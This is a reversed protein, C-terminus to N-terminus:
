FNSMFPGIPPTTQSSEICKFKSPSLSLVTPDPGMTMRILLKKNHLPNCLSTANTDFPWNLNWIEMMWGVNFRTIFTCNWCWFSMIQFEFSFCRKLMLLFISLIRKLCSDLTLVWSHVLYDGNGHFWFVVVYDVNLQFMPYLDVKFLGSTM